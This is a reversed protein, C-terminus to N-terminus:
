TNRTNFRVSQPVSSLGSELAKDALRTHTSVNSVNSVMLSMAFLLNIDLSVDSRIHILSDILKNKHQM